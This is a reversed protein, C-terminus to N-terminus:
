ASAKDDDDFPLNVLSGDDVVSARTQERYLLHATEFRDTARRLKHDARWPNDPKYLHIGELTDALAELLQSANGVVRHWQPTLHTAAGEKPVVNHAAMRMQALAAAFRQAYM